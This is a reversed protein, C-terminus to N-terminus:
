GPIRVLNPFARCFEEIPLVKIGVGNVTHYIKTTKSTSAVSVIRVIDGVTKDPNQVRFAHGSDFEPLPPTTQPPQIRRASISLVMM